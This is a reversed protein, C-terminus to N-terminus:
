GSKSPDTREFVVAYHHPSVTVTESARFGASEVAAVTEEPAMRLEAPPGRPEDLVPTEAPQEDIWNIVAFRGGPDLVERVDEAFATKEPIGHFTNALLVYEVREPLLEPLATADGEVTVVRGDTDDMRAELAALLEGDLDIAYVSGDVLEAAARTFHGDGCCVDALSGCGEVGLTRLTTEPDGWLASWWDRDPQATNRFEAM